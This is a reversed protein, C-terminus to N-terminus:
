KSRQIMKILDVNETDIGDFDKCTIYDKEFRRNFSSVESILKKLQKDNKLVLYLGEDCINCFLERIQSLLFSKEKNLEKAKVCSRVKIDDIQLSFFNKDEFNFYDTFITDSEYETFFQVYIKAFISLEVKEIGLGVSLPVCVNLSKKEKLNKAEQLFSQLVEKRKAEVVAIEKESQVEERRSTKDFLFQAVKDFDKDELNLVEAITLSSLKKPLKCM